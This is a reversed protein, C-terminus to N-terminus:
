AVQEQGVYKGIEKRFQQISVYPRYELFERVMRNSFNPITKLYDDGSSTNLNLKTMAPAADSNSLATPQSVQANTPASANNSQTPPNTPQAAAQTPAPANTPAPAATPNTGGCAVLIFVFVFLLGVSLLFRSQM